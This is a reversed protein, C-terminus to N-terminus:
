VRAASRLADLTEGMSRGSIASARKTGPTFDGEDAKDSLQLVGYSPGDECCISTALWGRM